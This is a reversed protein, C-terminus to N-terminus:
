KRGKRKKCNKQKCGHFRKFSRGSSNKTLNVYYPMAYMAAMALCMGASMSKRM